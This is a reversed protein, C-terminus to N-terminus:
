VNQFLRSKLIESLRIQYEKVICRLNLFVLYFLREVRICIPLHDIAAIMVFSALKESYFYSYSLRPLSDYLRECLASNVAIYPTTLLPVYERENM